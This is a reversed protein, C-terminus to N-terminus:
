GKGNKQSLWILKFGLKSSALQIEPDGTVIEADNMTTAAIAFADAYSLRNEAKVAAAQLTLKEDAVLLELPWALSVVKLKVSACPKM